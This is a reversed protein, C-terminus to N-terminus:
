IKLFYFALEQLLKRTFRLLSVLHVAVTGTVQTLVMSRAPVMLPALSGCWSVHIEGEPSHYPCPFLRSIIVHRNLKVCSTLFPRELNWDGPHVGKSKHSRQNREPTVSPPYTLHACFVWNPQLVSLVLSPLLRQRGPITKHHHHWTVAWLCQHSHPLARQRKM